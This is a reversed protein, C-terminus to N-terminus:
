CFLDLVDEEEIEIHEIKISLYENGKNVINKKMSIEAVVKDNFEPYIHQFTDLIPKICNDLDALKSSLGVKVTFKLTDSAFKWIHGEDELCSKIREQYERYEKTKVKSRYFMKNASLPKIPIMIKM